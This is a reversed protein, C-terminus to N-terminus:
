IVTSGPKGKKNRKRNRWWFWLFAVAAGAVVFFLVGEITELPM